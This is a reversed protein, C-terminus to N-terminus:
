ITMRQNIHTIAAALADAAHDPEPVEPLGLLLKVYEQVVKKDASATGSVSKKITNPTYEGLPIVNQALCLTIVGRAESVTLASTVNRAFYLTEM